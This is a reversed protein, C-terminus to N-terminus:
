MVLPRQLMSLLGTLPIAPLWQLSSTGSYVGMCPFTTGAAWKSVNVISDFIAAPNGNNVVINYYHDAGTGLHIANVGNTLTSPLYSNAGTPNGSTLWGANGWNIAYIYNYPAGYQYVFIQEGTTALNLIGNWGNGATGNWGTVTGAPISAPATFTWVSEGSNFVGNTDLENDNFWLVTGAPIATFNVFAFTDPNTAKVGIIAIDGPNFKQQAAFQATSDPLLTDGSTRSVKISYATGVSGITINSFTHSNAGVPITATLTGGLTGSGSLLSLSIGTANAVNQPINSNDLARVTINFPVNATIPEGDNISAINLKVPPQAMPTAQIIFNELRNNGAGTGSAGTLTLRLYVIAAGDIASITDMNLTRTLWTATINATNTGFDTFTTGNTSYAWQHTTFGTSTGRTAFSIQADEMGTMSFKFVISKGNSPNGTGGGLPCLSMGAVPTSRFDNLTTGAFSNLETAQLWNSSGNTSDMYIAATTQFGHEAAIVRPTNPSAALNDFTWAAIMIPTNLPISAPGALQAKTAQVCCFMALLIFTFLKTRMMPSKNIEVFTLM